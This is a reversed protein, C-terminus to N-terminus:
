EEEDQNKLGEVDELLKDVMEIEDDEKKGLYQYKGERVGVKIRGRFDESCKVEWIHNLQKWEEDSLDVARNFLERAHGLAVDSHDLPSDVKVLRQTQNLYHIINTVSYDYHMKAMSIVFILYAKLNNPDQNIKETIAADFEVGDYVLMVGSHQSAMTPTHPTSLTSIYYASIVQYCLLVSVALLYSM